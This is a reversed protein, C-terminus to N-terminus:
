GISVPTETRSDEKYSLGAEKQWANPDRTENRSAQRRGLLGEWNGIDMSFRPKYGAISHADSATRDPVAGSGGGSGAGYVNRMSGGGGSTDYSGPRLGTYFDLGQAVVNQPNVYRAAM